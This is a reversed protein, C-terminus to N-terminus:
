KNSEKIIKDKIQQLRKKYNKDDVTIDIIEAIFGGILILFSEIKEETLVGTKSINFKFVSDVINFLCEKQYEQKIKFKCCIENMIYNVTKNNM